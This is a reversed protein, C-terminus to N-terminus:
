ARTPSLPVKSSPAEGGNWIQRVRLAMLILVALSVCTAVLQSLSGSGLLGANVAVFLAVIASGLFFEFRSLRPAVPLIAFILFVQLPVDGFKRQGALSHLSALWVSPIAAVAAFTLFAELWHKQRLHGRASTLTVVSILALLVVDSHHALGPWFRVVYPIATKFVLNGVALALVFPLCFVSVLFLGILTNVITDRRSM